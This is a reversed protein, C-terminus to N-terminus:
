ILKIIAGVLGGVLLIHGSLFSLTFGVGRSKPETIYAKYYIM